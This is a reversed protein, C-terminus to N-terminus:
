INTDLTVEDITCVKVFLVCWLIFLPNGPKIPFLHRSELEMAGFSVQSQMFSGDKSYLTSNLQLLSSM